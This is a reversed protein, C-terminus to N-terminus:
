LHPSSLVEGIGGAWALVVEDQGFAGALQVGFPMGDITGAPLSINPLGANTWPFSMAPNGTSDLGAPATGIAAPAIWLDIGAAETVSELLQGLLVQNARANEITEASIG